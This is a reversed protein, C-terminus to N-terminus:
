MVWKLDRLQLRAGLWEAGVKKSVPEKGETGPNCSLTEEKTSIALERISNWSKLPTDDARMFDEPTLVVTQWDRGGQLEVEVAYDDLIVVMRNAKESLVDLSLKSGEFPAKYMDNYIKHTRITSDEEAFRFWEKDWAGQFSEILCTAELVPKVAAEKLDDVGAVLVPSSINFKDSTYIGFYYNAGNVNKELDYTVDAYVWLPQDDAQLPLCGQWVGDSFEANAHHWFRNISCDREEEPACATQQTYYIDVSLIKKSVDPKVTFVPIGDATKLNLKTEPTEPCRFKDKLFQEFWIMGGVAYQAWDRHNIHPSCVVRYEESQISELAQPLDQIRGHFDNSPSLFIIPCSVKKLYADDKVLDYIKHDENSLDSIGGCSPAAAKIRDDAGATLVTLKGGMSHGYVGIREGDVEPQQELFTIARRAAMTCPFWGSNRPSEVQDITDECSANEVFDNKPNRCYHHYADIAGWDTTVMYNPDEAKGELFLVKEDNTVLYQSSGIRGAWAISITAYGEKANAIVANAHASQGGGHIQVLGPLGTGKKPYGYVAAMMSKEGKFIGVRYRLVKIVAGDEEWEKLVDVDLPEIRPDFDTWLEEFSQPIKGDKIPSLTDGAVLTKKM